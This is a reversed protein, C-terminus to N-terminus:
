QCVLCINQALRIVRAIPVVLDSLCPTINESEVDISRSLCHYNICWGASIAEWNEYAARRIWRLTIIASRRIVGCDHAAHVNDSDVNRSMGFTAYKSYQIGALLVAIMFAYGFNSIHM